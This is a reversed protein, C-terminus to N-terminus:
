GAVNIDKPNSQTKFRNRGNGFDIHKDVTGKALM